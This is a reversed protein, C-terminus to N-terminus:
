DQATGARAQWQSDAPRSEVDIYHKSWGMRSYLEPKNVDEDLEIGLCDTLRDGTSWLSHPRVLNSVCNTLSKM